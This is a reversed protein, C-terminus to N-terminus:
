RLLPTPNYLADNAQKTAATAEKAAVEAWASLSISSLLGAIALGKVVPTLKM